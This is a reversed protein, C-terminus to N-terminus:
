PKQLVVVAFSTGAVERLAFASTLLWALMAVLSLRNTVGVFASGTHTAAFHLAYALVYAVALILAVRRYPRWRTDRRFSVSLLLSALVMFGFSTVVIFAHIVGTQSAREGPPDIPFLPAGFCGLAVFALFVIGIVAALRNPGAQSLGVALALCGVGLALFSVTMLWGYPGNAYDSVVHHVPSYDPRLFHLTVVGAAFAVLAAIAVISVSHGLRTATAAVM